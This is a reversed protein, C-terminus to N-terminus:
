FTAAKPSHCDNVGSDDDLYSKCPSGVMNKIQPFQVVFRLSEDIAIDTQCAEYRFNQNSNSLHGKIKM